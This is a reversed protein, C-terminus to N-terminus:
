NFKKSGIQEGFRRHLMDRLDRAVKKAFGRDIIRRTDRIIKAAKGRWERDGIRM